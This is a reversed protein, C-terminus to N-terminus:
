REIWDNPPAKPICLADAPRAPSSRRAPHPAAPGFDLARFRAGLADAIADPEEAPTPAERPPPAPAALPGDWGPVYREGARVVSEVDTDDDTGPGEEDGAELYGSEDVLDPRALSMRFVEAPLVADRDPARPRVRQGSDARPTRRGSTAALALLEDGFADALLRLVPGRDRPPIVDEPVTPLAPTPAKFQPVSEPLRRVPLPIRDLAASLPELAASVLPPLPPQPAPTVDAPASRERLWGVSEALIRLGDPTLHLVLTRVNSSPSDPRLSRVYDQRGGRRVYTLTRNQVHLEIEDFSAEPEHGAARLAPFAQCYACVVEHADDVTPVWRGITKSAPTDILWM